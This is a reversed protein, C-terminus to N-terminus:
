RDMEIIRVVQRSRPEVMVIKADPSVFYALRETGRTGMGRMPRLPVYGPVISGVVVQGGPIEIEAPAPREQIIRRRILVDEEPALEIAGTEDADDADDLDDGPDTMVQAKVVPPRTEDASVGSYPTLTIALGAALVLTINSM